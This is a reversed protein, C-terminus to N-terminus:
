KPRVSRQGTIIGIIETSKLHRELTQANYDVVVVPIGTSEIRQIDTGLAQFQWDALMLLDPKLSIVKEVSFTQADVRGIEPIDQLSPRYKVYMNWNAPRAEWIYKSMGVVHDYAAETGIAM